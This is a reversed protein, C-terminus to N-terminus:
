RRRGPQLRPQAAGDGRARRRRLAAQHDRRRADPRGGARRDTRGGPQRGRLDGGRRRMPGHRAREDGPPRGAPEGEPHRDGAPRALCDRLPQGGRGADVVLDALAYVDEIQYFFPRSVYFSEIERREAETYVSELRAKTDAGADYGAGKFLGTGHVVFLRDKLPILDGLADVVARNITRAGQSGGFAFVVQRGPPIVFDLRARAQERDVAAIRRRLPYGALVGNGPFRRLTEPFTVFVRDALRGVVQNLKGPEANQEHVYLRARSLGLRRLFAAAFMVPASAFGGTGVIVTPRFTLVIVCAQCFGIALNAFFRALAMSPRGGPFGSARVFRIPIGERPM